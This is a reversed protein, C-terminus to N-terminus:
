MIIIIISMFMAVCADVCLSTEAAAHRALTILRLEIVYDCCVYDRGM